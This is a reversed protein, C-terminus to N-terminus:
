RQHSDQSMQEYQKPDANRLVPQHCLQARHAGSSAAKTGSTFHEAAHESTDQAEQGATVM